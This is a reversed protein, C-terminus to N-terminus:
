QKFIVGTLHRVNLHVCEELRDKFHSMVNRLMALPIQGVEQRIREKLAEITRPPNDQYVKSKLYGWLFFDCATLDPSRSPWAIDGNRSIVHNSFLQNVINMSVRATHSTAGDQQFFIENDVKYHVLQPTFFTTWCRQSTVTVANGHGDEFFYPGIIGLSSMTCWVTVKTSHLPQQHLERPNVESWFRFNQKNVYGSLHFRAEDSM